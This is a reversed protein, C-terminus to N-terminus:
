DCATTPAPALAQVKDAGDAIALWCAKSAPDYIFRGYSQAGRGAADIPGPVVIWKLRNSVTGQNAQVTPTSGIATGGIGVGLVIWLVPKLIEM